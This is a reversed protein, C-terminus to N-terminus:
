VIAEEVVPRNEAIRAPSLASLDLGIFRGELILEAVARGMAPAQQLGHGSFGNVAYLNPTGPMAGVIANQDFTNFAYHGAWCGVVKVADFGPARAYLRPWIAQEFAGRDPEFDDPAVAADTEPVIACLWKDGEPRLYFGSPDVLLPAGPARVNPADVLFVTRKRPEVPIDEDVMRMVQAARTGAANVLAGTAVRQGDSLRVAAVRGAVREIGVVSAALYTVGAARAGRRFASLLAMNDFWGEDRPGFSALCLGAPDLYPFRHALAAVPILETAAGAARQLAVAARMAAEAKASGALFLYGNEVLDLRDPIGELQINDRINKIFSIGFRSIAVNIGQTFQQRISAVSLATSAHRYGPDPEAVLVRCRGGGLRALWWAVASGMAAGGAIVVDYTTPKPM